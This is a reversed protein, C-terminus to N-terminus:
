SWVEALNSQCLYPGFLCLVDQMKTAAADKGDQILLKNFRASKELSLVSIFVCLCDTLLCVTPFLSHQYDSDHHYSNEVGGLHLKVQIFFKIYCSYTNLKVKTLVTVCTASWLTGTWHSSSKATARERVTEKHGFHFMKKTIFINEKIEKHTTFYYNVHVNVDLLCM